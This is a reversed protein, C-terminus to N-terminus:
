NGIRKKASNTDLVDTFNIVFTPNVALNPVVTSIQKNNLKINLLEFNKAIPPQTVPTEKKCSVVVGFMLSALFLSFIFPATRLVGLGM